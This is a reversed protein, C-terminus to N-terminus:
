NKYLFWQCKCKDVVCDGATYNHSNTKRHKNHPHGCKCIPEEAKVKKIHKYAWDIIENDLHVDGDYNRIPHWFSGSMPEGMAGSYGFTMEGIGNHKTRVFVEVFTKKDTIKPLEKKISIWEM